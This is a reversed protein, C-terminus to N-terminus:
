ECHRMMVHLQRSLKHDLPNNLADKDLDHGMFHCLNGKTVKFMGTEKEGSEM